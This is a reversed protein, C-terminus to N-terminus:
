LLDTSAMPHELSPMLGVPWVLFGQLFSFSAAIAAVIALTFCLIRHHRPVLLLYLTAVFFLIVLYWALQFSWLSNQVDVLSFWVIGLSLVSLLSLRRGLYSRFVPLLVIFSAIFTIASCLIISKENLHDLLGFAVFFLRSVFPRANSWQSWLATM